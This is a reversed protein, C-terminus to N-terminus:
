LVTKAHPGFRLALRENDREIRWGFEFERQWYLGPLSVLDAEPTDADNARESEDGAAALRDALYIDAAQRNISSPNLESLNCASIITVGEEPFRLFDARYGADGGSHMIVPRGRYTGHALGFAYNISKADNLRGRQLLGDILAQGGVRPSDFNAAWLALD